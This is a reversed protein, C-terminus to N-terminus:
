LRERKREIMKIFYQELTDVMTGITFRQEASIRANKALEARFVPKEILELIADRLAKSDAPPVLLGTIGDEIVEPIGGATTAIIPRQLAM